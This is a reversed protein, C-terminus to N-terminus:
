LLENSTPEDFQSHLMQIISTTKLTEKECALGPQFGYVTYPKQVFPPLFCFVLEVYSKVSGEIRQLKGFGVNWRVINRFPLLM